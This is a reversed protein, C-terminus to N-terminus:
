RGGPQLGPLGRARLIAAWQSAPDLGNQAGQPGQPMQPPAGGQQAFPSQFQFQQPAQMSQGLQQQAQMRLPNMQNWKQQEFGLQKGQAVGGAIGGVGQLVTSGLALKDAFPMEKLKQGLGGMLHTSDGAVKNSVADAATSSAQGDGYGLAGQVSPAYSGDLNQGVSTTAGGFGSGQSPIQAVGGAAHGSLGGANGGYSGIGGHYNLLNGGAQGLGALSANSLGAGAAQGINKGRGLEGAAGMGGALALGLPGGVVTGAVPALNKVLNGLTHKDFRIRPGIQM